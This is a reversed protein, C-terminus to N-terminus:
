HQNNPRPRKAAASAARIEKNTQKLEKEFDEIGGIVIHKNDGFTQHETGTATIEVGESVRDVHSLVASM